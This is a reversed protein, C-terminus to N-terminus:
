GRRLQLDYLLVVGGPNLPKPQVVRWAQGDITMNDGIAPEVDAGAEVYARVDGAVINTGDIERSSYELTVVTVSYEVPAGQNASSTAPNYTGQAKRTLVAKRGFQKLLRTATGRLAVYDM